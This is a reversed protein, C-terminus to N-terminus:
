ILHRLLTPLSIEALGISEDSAGFYLRLVDDQVVGGCAFVVNPFFGGTEYSLEPAFIPTTNRAIIRAPNDHAALFAGLCCRNQRDAAHYISLWGQETWIPPAGGGFRGSDWGIPSGQLVLRHNGWYLL